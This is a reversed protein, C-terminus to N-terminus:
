GQFGSPKAQPTIDRGQAAVPVLPKELTSQPAQRGIRGSSRLSSSTCRVAPPQWLSNEESRWAITGLAAIKM